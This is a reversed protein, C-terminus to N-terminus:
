ELRKKIFNITEKLCNKAEATNFNFQYEHTIEKTSDKYFLSDVPVNLSKLKNSFSIGQDEFSFANGDTIYTPPFDKTLHDVVSIQKLETSNQWDKSGLLSWAVTKVFFKMFKNDSKQQAVQKLDLPGCYSIYGLITKSSVSRTMNMEKSYNKNTQVAVYQAAIQSGASDGGFFVKTFDLMPYDNQHQALFTYMENMQIVQGPYHLDPALEYNMVVVAVKNEHALYTAFEKMGSKDGGVYGGGHAWFVVPVKGASKEPYYIDLTNQKYQSTYTIDKVVKVTQKAAAYKEKDKIEVEQSFMRNIILAGPKPSVQFAIFVGILLLIIITLFWLLIKVLKKM